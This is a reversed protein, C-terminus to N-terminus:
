ETETLARRAYAIPKGKQLLAAGLGKQSADCQLVLESQSDYYSWVRCKELHQKKNKEGNGNM